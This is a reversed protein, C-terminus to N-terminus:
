PWANPISTAKPSGISALGLDHCPVVEQGERPDFWGRQTEIRNLRVDGLLEM